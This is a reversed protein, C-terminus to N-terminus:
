CKFLNQYTFWKRMGLAKKLPIGYKALKNRHKFFSPGHSMLPAIGKRMRKKSDIDWQYQHCMEHALTLILWQKCYWKDSLRIICNSKITDLDPVCEKALCFGWYERCRSMIQFEPMPLRNNFIEKNILEFLSEVEHQTTRYSLRRQSTINPLDENMLHYLQSYKSM